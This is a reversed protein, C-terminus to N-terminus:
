RSFSPSADRKKIRPSPKPKSEEEICDLLNTPTRRGRVDTFPVDLDFTFLM